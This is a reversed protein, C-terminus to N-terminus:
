GMSVDYFGDNKRGYMQEQTMVLLLRVTDSTVLSRIILTLNDHSQETHAACACTNLTNM